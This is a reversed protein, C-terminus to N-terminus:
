RRDQWFLAFLESQSNIGLKAYLHKKHARVTEVSIALHRAIEKTTCGALMLQSVERERETLARQADQALTGGQRPHWPHLGPLNEELAEFHSRQRMLALLWPQVLALLGLAEHDFSAVSGLSLCLTREDDLVCNFQVEDAVINRRFYRQYYETRTFGQPAVDALTYLGSRGRGKADIYFPDLLYLGRQYDQFLTEDAGDDEDSEALIRPPRHDFFVLAVWTNFDLHRELLRVVALWFDEQDLTEVLGAFARHWGLAALATQRPPRREHHDQESM